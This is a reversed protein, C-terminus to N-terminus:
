IRAEAILQEVLHLGKIADDLSCGKLSLDSNKCAKSIDEYLGKLGYVKSEPAILAESGLHQYGKHYRDAQAIQKTKKIGGARLAYVANDYKFEFEFQDYVGDCACFHVLGCDPLKLVADILPDDKSKNMVSSVIQLGGFWDQLLDIGHSGYNFLGKSYTFSIHKPEHEPLQAKFLQHDKDYRRHFNVVAKINNDDCIDRIKEAEQLSFAIPKEFVIVRPKFRLISQLLAARNNPPAAFVIVDISDQGVLDAGEFFLDTPLSTHAQILAHKERDPDVLATIEFDDNQILARLHSLPEIGQEAKLDYLAGIQGLGIIIARNKM